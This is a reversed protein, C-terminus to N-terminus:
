GAIDFPGTAAAVGVVIGVTSWAASKGTATSTTAVGIAAEGSVGASLVGTM